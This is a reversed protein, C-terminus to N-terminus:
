RRAVVFIEAANEPFRKGIEFFGDMMRDDFWEEIQGNSLPKLFVGGTTEVTWGADTVHECLLPMDYVRRHGLRVDLDNLANPTPLLGMEVAVLRHISQANPVLMVLRGDEDVWERAGRLVTVPDEVHELIHTGLVTGFHRDPRYDEFLSCEVTLRTEGAFHERLQDCFTASGEVSVVSDFHDLLLGTMQGDAPGLELCTAGAFHPQLSRFGYGVLRGYFGSRSSYWSAVGELREHEDAM